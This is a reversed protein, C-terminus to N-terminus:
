RLYLAVQAMAVVSPLDPVSESVQEAQSTVHKTAQSVSQGASGAAVATVRSYQVPRLETREGQRWPHWFTAM